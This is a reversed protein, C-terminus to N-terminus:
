QPYTSWQTSPQAHDDYVTRIIPAAGDVAELFTANIRYVRGMAAPHPSFRHHIIVLVGTERVCVVSVVAAVLIMNGRVGAVLYERARQLLSVCIALDHPRTITSVSFMDPMTRLRRSDLAIASAPM